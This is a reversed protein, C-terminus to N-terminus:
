DSGFFGYQDRSHSDAGDPKDGALSMRGNGTSLEIVPTMLM